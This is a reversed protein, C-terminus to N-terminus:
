IAVRVTAPEIGADSVLKAFTFVNARLAQLLSGRSRVLAHQQSEEATM